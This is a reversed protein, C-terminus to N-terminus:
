KIRETYPQVESLNIELLVCCSEKIKSCLLNFNASTNDM